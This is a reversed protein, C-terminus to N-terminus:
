LTMVVRGAIRGQDMRDFIGNVSGLMNTAYDSAVKGDAAFSVSEALDARARVISGRAEREFLVRGDSVAPKRVPCDKPPNSLDTFAAAKGTPM